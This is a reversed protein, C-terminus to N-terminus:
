HLSQINATLCEAGGVKESPTAGVTDSKKDVRAMANVFAYELLAAFVFMMCMSMWIDIAKPYSM